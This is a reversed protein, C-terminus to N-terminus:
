RRWKHPSYDNNQTKPLAPKRFILNACERDREAQYAKLSKEDWGNLIDEKTLM